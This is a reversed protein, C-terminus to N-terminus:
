GSPSTAAALHLRRDVREVQRRSVVGDEGTVHLVQVVRLAVDGFREDERDDEDVQNERREESREQLRERDHERQGQAENADRQRQEDRLAVHVHHGHDADDHEHAEHRLVANQEDVERVLFALVAAFALGRNKSAARVRMRGIMMVVNAMTNPMIGSASAIPAPASCRAGMARATMPPKIVDVKRVSNTTGTIYVSSSSAAAQSRSGGAIVM